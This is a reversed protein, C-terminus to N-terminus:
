RAAATINSKGTAAPKNVPAFTFGSVVVILVLLISKEM